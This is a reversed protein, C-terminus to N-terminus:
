PKAPAPPTPPKSFDVTPPAQNAGGTANFYTRPKAGTVKATVVTMHASAVLPYRGGPIYAGAASVPINKQGLFVGPETEVEFDRLSDMQHQAFTRVRHQVSRIDAIAQEPVTAIIKEISDADLHFSDPSWGDFKESYERVAADGRTRVADIVETVTARVARLREDDQAAPVASKLYQAM